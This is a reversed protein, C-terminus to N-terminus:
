DPKTFLCTPKSNTHYLGDRINQLRDPINWQNAMRYVSPPVLDRWEQGATMRQRIDSSSIGKEEPSVEWLVVTKLGLSKFYRLKQRGWDDYITLFFVADLPVYYQYLGPINIPFPVISFDHRNVGLEDMVATVMLYREFYTLPNAQPHSRKRDSAAERTLGPDPNTIGIVLHRCREKGAMIYRLHDNHLIQFRGHIVGTPIDISESKM